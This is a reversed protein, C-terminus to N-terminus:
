LGTIGLAAFSGPPLRQAMTERARLYSMYLGGARNDFGVDAVSLVRLGLSLKARIPNLLPDFAEETVSFESIRVPQVRNGGWVFLTLPAQAPIIELSGSGAMGNVGNLHASSPNVLAELAAIQPHLGYQVVNPYQDPQALYDAADLEADLKITEVAPGKLRLAESLDGSGDGHAQIQLTRSVSDPNYQLTLIRQVAGSNPDVAVLGGRILKPSGPFSM